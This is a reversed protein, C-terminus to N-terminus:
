NSFKELDIWLCAVKKDWEDVPVAHVIQAELCLGVSLYEKTGLEAFFRDYFGGGRGLRNGQRDFALGPTFILAPFDAPELSIAPLPEPIGSRERWFCNRPLDKFNQPLVRYFGIKNTDKEQRPLFVKKKDELAAKLLPLTDIETKMPMFLLMTNYRGWVPSLPVLSVARLGAERFQEPPLHALRSKMEQRLAAKVSQM